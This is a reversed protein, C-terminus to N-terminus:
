SGEPGSCVADRLVTPFSCFVFLCFPFLDHNTPVCVQVSCQMSYLSSLFHRLFCFCLFQNLQTTEESMNCLSQLSFYSPKELKLM